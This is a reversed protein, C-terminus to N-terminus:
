NQWYESIYKPGRINLPQLNIVIINERHISVKIMIYHRKQRKHGNKFRDLEESTLIAVETRKQKGNEYFLQKCGKVKMRHMDKFRFHTEQLYM